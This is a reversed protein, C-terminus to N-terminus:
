VAFPEKHNYYLLLIPTTYTTFLSHVCCTIRRVLRVTLPTHLKVVHYPYRRPLFGRASSVHWLLVSQKIREHGDGVPSLSKLPPLLHRCLLIEHEYGLQEALVCLSCPLCPFRILIPLPFFYPCPLEPDPRSLLSHAVVFLFSDDNKACGPGSIHMVPSTQM